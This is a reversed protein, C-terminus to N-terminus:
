IFLVGFSAVHQQNLGEHIAIHIRLTVSGSPPNYGVRNTQPLGVSCDTKFVPGSIIINMTYKLCAYDHNAM